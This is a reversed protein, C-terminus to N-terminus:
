KRDESDSKLYQIQKSYKGHYKWNFEVLTGLYEKISSVIKLILFLISVEAQARKSINM